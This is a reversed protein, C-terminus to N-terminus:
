NKKRKEYKEVVNFVFFLFSVWTFLNCSENQMDCNRQFIQEDDFWKKKKLNMKFHISEYKYNDYFYSQKLLCILNKNYAKLSLYETLCQNPQVSRM